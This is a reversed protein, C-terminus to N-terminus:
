WGADLPHWHIGCSAAMGPRWPLPRDPSRSEKGDVRCAKLALLHCEEPCMGPVLHGPAIRTTM